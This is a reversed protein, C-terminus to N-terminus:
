ASATQLSDGLARRTWHGVDNSRVTVRMDRMRATVEEPDMVLARVLERSLGDIDFPNVSLAGRLEHVAGAFESLLLVGGEDVRSAVYEKAVLNMGDVLPTVVMVDAARYYAVLEDRSLSEYVYHVPMNHRTGYMGNIRGAILEIEDRMAAYDKISDRSPVAIQVFVVSEALGPLSELMTEYSRLRVDIGKTYDLRDAGLIVCTPEGLQRRLDDVKRETSELRAIRDFDDVDISIPAAVVRTLHDRAVLGNENADAQGFEVAAAIFNAASRETQFGILDSGLLSCVIEGRWPLRSFIEIPPFPIHLFFRVSNGPRQGKILGPVLQLQYDHIWYVDDPGGSALARTAFKHNVTQYSHWWSRHYEPARISNHYLPWISQNCFGLYYEDIERPSIPVGISEIGELEFSDIEEDAEGSWGIWSGSRRRVVPALASVLGGPSVSWSDGSRQVPLRNAVVITRRSM